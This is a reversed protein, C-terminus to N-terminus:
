GRHLHAFGSQDTNILLNAGGQRWLTVPKSVHKGVPAFGASDLLAELAPADDPGSAFEIFGFGEVAAPPPFFARAPM